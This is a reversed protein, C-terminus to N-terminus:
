KNKMDKRTIRHPEVYELASARPYPLSPFQHDPRPPCYKVCVPEGGCLDCKLVEKHPGVRIADFPCAEMCALCGICKDDNIVVAGTNEDTYMAEPVPCAQQCLPVTCHRCIIPNCSGDKYSRTVTIRALSPNVTGTKVLSCVLQCEWCGTCLDPIARFIRTKKM